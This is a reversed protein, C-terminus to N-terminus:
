GCFRRSFPRKPVKITMYAVITLIMALSVALPVASGLVTHSDNTIGDVSLPIAANGWLFYIQIAGNIFANIVGNLVAGQLIAKDTLAPVADNRAM